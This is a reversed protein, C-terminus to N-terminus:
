STLKASALRNFSIGRETAELARARHVQPPIRVHFEGSNRKEALPATQHSLFVANADLHAEPEDISHPINCVTNMLAIGISKLCGWPSVIALLALATQVPESFSPL